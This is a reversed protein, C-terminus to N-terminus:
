IKQHFINDAFKRLKNNLNENAMLKGLEEPSLKNLITLGRQLPL